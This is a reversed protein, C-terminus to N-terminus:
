TIELIAFHQHIVQRIGANLESITLPELWEVPRNRKNRLRVDYFRTHFAKEIADIDDRNTLRCVVLVSVQAHGIHNEYRKKVGSLKLSQGFKVAGHPVRLYTPDTKRDDFAPGHNIILYIGRDVSCHQIM